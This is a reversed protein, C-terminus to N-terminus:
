KLSEYGARFWMTCHKLSYDGQCKMAEKMDAFEGGCARMCWLLKQGSVDMNLM